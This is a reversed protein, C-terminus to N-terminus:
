CTDLVEVMLQMLYKECIARMVCSFTENCISLPKLNFLFAVLSEIAWLYLLM